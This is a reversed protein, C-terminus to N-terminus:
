RRRKVVVLAVVCAIIALPLLALLIYVYVPTAHGETQADSAAPAPAETGAPEATPTSTPTPTPTPTPAPTPSPTPTPLVAMVADLAAAEGTAADAYVATVTYSREIVAGDLDTDWAAAYADWTRPAPAEHAAGFPTKVERTGFADVYYVTYETEAQAAALLYAPWSETPIHYNQWFRLSKASGATNDFVGTMDYVGCFYVYGEYAKKAYAHGGSDYNSEAVIYGDSVGDLDEDYKDIILMEHGTCSQLVDGPRGQTYKVRNDGHRKIGGINGTETMAGYNRVNLGALRFALHVFGNCHTGDTDHAKDRIETMFYWGYERVASYGDLNQEVRLGMEQLKNFYAFVGAVMGERTYVGEHAVHGAIYANLEDVTYNFHEPLYEYLPADPFETNERELYCLIQEPVITEFPGYMAGDTDMLWMYYTGPLKPTKFIPFTQPVWDINDPEPQKDIVGLYYAALHCNTEAVRITLICFDSTASELALRKEETPAPTGADAAPDSELGADPAPTGAAPTATQAYVPAAATLLVLCLLCAVVAAGARRGKNRGSM